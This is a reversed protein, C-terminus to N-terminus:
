YKESNNNNSNNSSLVNFTNGERQANGSYPPFMCQSKATGMSVM